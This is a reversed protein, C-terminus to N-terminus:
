FKHYIETLDENIKNIDWTMYETSLLNRVKNILNLAEEPFIAEVDAKKINSKINDEKDKLEMYYEPSYAPSKYAELRSNLFELCKEEAFDGIKESLARSNYGM